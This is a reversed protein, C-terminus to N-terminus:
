LAAGSFTGLLFDLTQSTASLQRPRSLEALPVRRLFEACRRSHEGSIGMSELMEARWTAAPLFKLLAKIGCVERADFEGWALLFAARVPLPANREDPNQEPASLHFKGKRMHDPELEHANWGLESLADSWLKIRPASPYTLPPGAAPVELRCLDDSILQCGRSSLQAALTSKGQGARGCFILAEDGIRVASAHVMFLRRQYCLAGWAVGLLWPRLRGADISPAPTVHIECGDRVHLHGIGPMPLDFRNPSILPPGANVPHAPLLRITVEPNGAQLAEECQSWEPLHIESAISMGSNAYFWRSSQAEGSNEM